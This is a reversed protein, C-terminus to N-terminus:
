LDTMADNSLWEFGDNDYTLEDYSPGDDNSSSGDDYTSSGDDHSTTGDDHASSEDDYASTDDDDSEHQGHFHWTKGYNDDNSRWHHSCWRGNINNILKGNKIQFTQHM